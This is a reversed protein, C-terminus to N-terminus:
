SSSDASDASPRLRARPKMGGRAVVALHVEAAGGALLVRAAEALTSGTTLVDDVLLIRKGRIPTSQAIQFSNQVNSRRQSPELGAQRPTWRSRRLVNRWVPRELREGLRAALRDTTNFGRMMRRWFHIPLPIIGDIQQHSLKPAVQEVWLRALSEVLRYGGPQKMALILPQLPPEYTNMRVTSRFPFKEGRCYPCGDRTDTFAGISAACKPCTESPDDILQALCSPCFDSQTPLLRTDCAACLSPYVLDVWERVWSQWHPQAM